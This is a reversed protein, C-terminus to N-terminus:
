FDYYKRLCIALNSLLLDNSLFQKKIKTNKVKIAQAIIVIKFFVNLENKFQLGFYAQCFM